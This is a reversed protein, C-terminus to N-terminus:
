QNTKTSKKLLMLHNALQPPIRSTDIMYSLIGGLLDLSIKEIYHMIIEASLPAVFMGKGSSIKGDHGAHLTLGLFWLNGGIRMKITGNNQYYEGTLLLDGDTDIRHFEIPYLPSPTHIGFKEAQPHLLRLHRSLKITKKAAKMDDQTPALAIMRKQSHLIQTMRFTATSTGENIIVLNPFTQFFEEEGQPHKEDRKRIMAMLSEADGTLQEIRAQKAPLNFTLDSIARLDKAQRQFDFNANFSNSIHLSLNDTGHQLPFIIGLGEPLNLSGFSQLKKPGDVLVAEGKQANNSFAMEERDPEYVYYIKKAVIYVPNDILSQLQEPKGFIIRFTDKSDYTKILRVKVHPDSFRVNSFHQALAPSDFREAPYNSSAKSNSILIACSALLSICSIKKM